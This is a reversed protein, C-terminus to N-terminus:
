ENIMRELLHPRAKNLWDIIQSPNIYCNYNNGINNTYTILRKIEPVDKYFNIILQDRGKDTIIEEDSAQILWDIINIQCRIYQDKSVATMLVDEYNFNKFHDRGEERDKDFDDLNFYVTTDNIIYNNEESSTLAYDVYNPLNDYIYEKNQKVPILDLGNLVYEPFEVEATVIFKIKITKSFNIPKYKTEPGCYALMKNFFPFPVYTPLVDSIWEFMWLRQKTHSCYNNFIIFPDEDAYIARLVTMKNDDKQVIIAQHM